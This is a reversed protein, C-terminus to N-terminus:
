RSANVKIPHALRQSFETLYQMWQGHDTFQGSKSWCAGTYYVFPQGPEAQSTVLVHEKSNEIQRVPTTGPMVVGCGVAGNVPDAPEWYAVPGSGPQYSVIGDHGRLSIGVAVPVSQDAKFRDEMRNLNSGLDLSIRKTERVTQGAAEWPEYDLEFVTRIPGNALVRSTVFNRSGYLTGDKYVSLGGCGRAPGVKYYDLGEGHDEHYKGSLYWKDVVPYTVKKVWVDIGSSVTEWELAKGYMRFAIRDNEWAFDDMREPVFRGFTTTESEPTKLSDAAKMVWFWRQQNPSFDAQFLLAEPRRNGDLDLVQSVLPRNTVFDVVVVDRTGMGSLDSWPVSLTERTRFITIDNVAHVLIASAKDRIAIKAVETGALLFSGVGYVETMDPGVKGPAAGIPQIWGLKGTSQVCGVLGQWAKKVVPGYTDADLFGRNVGWALGYCFFGSGSAEQPPYTVPDLLSSRWLGDQGQIELLKASMDRYLQVYRPRDPYDLPMAQLVKVLGGFVWGNGRCWFMKKGNAERQDFYRSDRFYLHEEKDYLFDTTAWWERNMFDLYKSDGTLASLEAWVPPGMFLADCWWWRDERTKEEFVLSSASPHAMIWDFREQLPKIMVPNRVQKFLDLYMQGVCHDDAHYLRRGLQWENKDGVAMLAQTYTETDAMRAWASLGAYLAGQTWDTTAHTGPNALQWDAVQTMVRVIARENMDSSFGSQALVSGGSLAMM